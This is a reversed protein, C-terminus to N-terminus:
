KEEVKNRTEQDPPIAHQLRNLIRIIADRRMEEELLAEGGSTALVASSDFRLDRQVSILDDSLWVTGDDAQLRIRVKYSLGYETARGQSDVSLVRKSNSENRLVLKLPATETVRVGRDRLAERLEFVIDTEPGAAMVAMESLAPPLSVSGRLHFGCSSLMAILFVILARM